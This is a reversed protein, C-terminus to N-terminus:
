ADATSTEDYESRIRPMKAAKLCIKWKDSQGFKALWRQCIVSSSHKVFERSVKTLCRRCIFADARQWLQREFCLILAM